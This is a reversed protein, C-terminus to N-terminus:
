CEPCVDEENEVWYGKVMEPMLTDGMAVARNVQMGVLKWMEEGAIGMPEVVEKKMMVLTLATNIPILQNAVVSEGVMDHCPKSCASTM